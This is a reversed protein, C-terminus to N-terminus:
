GFGFRGSCWDSFQVVSGPADVGTVKKVRISMQPFDDVIWVVGSGASSRVPAGPDGGVILTVTSPGRSTPATLACQELVRGRNRAKENRRLRHDSLMRLLLQPTSHASAAAYTAHM